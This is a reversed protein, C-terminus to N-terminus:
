PDSDVGKKRRENDEDYDESAYINKDIEDCDDYRKRYHDKTEVLRTGQQFQPERFVVQGNSGFKCSAVLFNKCSSGHCVQTLSQAQQDKALTLTAGIVLYGLVATILSRM